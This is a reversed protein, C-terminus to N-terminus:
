RGTCFSVDANKMPNPSLVVLLACQDDVRASAVHLSLGPKLQGKV